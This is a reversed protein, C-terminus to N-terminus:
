RASSPDAAKIVGVYLDGDTHWRDGGGNRGERVQHFGEVIYEETLDGTEKLDTLLKDRETDVDAAIRHTVQGTRRSFEVRTDFTAGGIWVPRGDWDSKESRWFRVHHRLRPDKGAPQEFALDQKRDWLFLDSVPATEYSRRRITAGVIKLSSRFTLPDAPIWGAAVMIKVVEEDTGILAVNLPDGPVGTKTHTIVPIDALSPRRRVYRRWLAPMILYAVVAWLLVFGAV